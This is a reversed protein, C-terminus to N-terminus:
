KDSLLSKSAFDISYLAASNSVEKHGCNMDKRVQLLGAGLCVGSVDTELYLPGLHMM